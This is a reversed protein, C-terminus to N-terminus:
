FNVGFVRFPVPQDTNNACPVQRFHWRRLSAMWRSKFLVFLMCHPQLLSSVNNYAAVRRPAAPRAGCGPGPGSRIGARVLKFIM